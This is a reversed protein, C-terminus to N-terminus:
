LPRLAEENQLRRTADGVAAATRRSRRSTSPEVRDPKRKRSNVESPLQARQSSSSSTAVAPATNVHLSSGIAQFLPPPSSPNHEFVRFTSLLLWSQNNLKWRHGFTAPLETRVIKMLRKWEADLRLKFEPGEPKRPDNARTNVLTGWACLDGEVAVVAQGKHKDLDDQGIAQCTGHDTAVKRLIRLEACEAEGWDGNSNGSEADSESEEKSEALPPFHQPVPEKPSNACKTRTCDSVTLLVVRGAEDSCPECMGRSLAHVWSYVRTPNHPMFPDPHERVAAYGPLCERVKDKGEFWFRFYLLGRVGIKLRTPHRLMASGTPLGDLLNGMKVVRFFVHTRPMYTRQTAQTPDTRKSFALAISKAGGELRTRRKLKTVFINAHAIRADTLNFAHGPGLPSLEVWINYLKYVMSLFALMLYARYGNGTDGSLLLSTSGPFLSDLLSQKKHAGEPHKAPNLLQDLFFIGAEGDKKHGDPVGTQNAADFFFDVQKQKRNGWGILTASWMAAKKGRSDQMGGYDLFALVAGMKLKTGNEGMRSAIYKRAGKRWVVHQKLDPLKTDELKRKEEWAKIYGGAAKLVATNEDADLDDPLGDLAARLEELRAVAILYDRCRDCLDHPPRKWLRLKPSKEGNSLLSPGLITGYFTAYSRPRVVSPDVPGDEEESEGGLAGIDVERREVGHNEKTEQSEVEALIADCNSESLVPLQQRLQHV